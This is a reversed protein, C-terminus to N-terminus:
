SLMDSLKPIVIGQATNVNCVRMIAGFDIFMIKCQRWSLSEPLNSTM